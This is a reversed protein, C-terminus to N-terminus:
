LIHGRTGSSTMQVNTSARDSALYSTIYSSVQWSVSVGQECERPSDPNSGRGM